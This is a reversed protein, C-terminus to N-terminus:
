DGVKFLTQGPGDGDQKFIISEFTVSFFINFEIKTPDIHIAAKQGEAICGAESGSCLWPKIHISFDPGASDM